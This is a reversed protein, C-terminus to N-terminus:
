PTQVGNYEFFQNGSRASGKTIEVASIHRYRTDLLIVRLLEQSFLEKGVLLAVWQFLGCSCSGRFGIDTECNPTNTLRMREFLQERVLLPETPIM